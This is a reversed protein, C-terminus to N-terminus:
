HKCGWVCVSQNLASRQGDAHKNANLHMQTTSPDPARDGSTRQVNPQTHTQDNIYTQTDTSLLRKSAAAEPLTTLIDMNTECAIQRRATDLVMALARTKNSDHHHHHHQQSNRICLIHKGVISETQITKCASLSCAM